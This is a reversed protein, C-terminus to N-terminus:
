GHVLFCFYNGYLLYFWSINFQFHGVLVKNSFKKEKNNNGSKGWSESDMLDVEWRQWDLGKDFMELVVKLITNWVVWSFISVIGFYRLSDETFEFVEDGVIGDNHVVDM